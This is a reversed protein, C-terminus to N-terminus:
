ATQVLCLRSVLGVEGLQGDPLTVGDWVPERDWHSDGSQGLSLFVCGPSAPCRGGNEFHGLPRARGEDENQQSPVCLGSLSLPRGLTACGPLPVDPHPGLGQCRGWECPGVAAGTPNSSPPPVQHWAASAPIPPQVAGQAAVGGPM